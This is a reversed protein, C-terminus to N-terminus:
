YTAVNQGTGGGDSCRPKDAGQQASSVDVRYVNIVRAIAPRKFPSEQLLRDRIAAADSTFQPMQAQTYGDSVLVLNWCLSVPGADAIKTLGLVRGDATSM